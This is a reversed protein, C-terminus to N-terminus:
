DMEQVGCWGLRSWDRTDHNPDEERRGQRYTTNQLNAQTARAAQFIHFTHETTKHSQAVTRINGRFMMLQWAETIDNSDKNNYTRDKHIPRELLFRAGSELGKDVKTRKRRKGSVGVDHTDVMQEQRKTGRRTNM